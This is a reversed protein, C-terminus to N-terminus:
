ALLSEPNRPNNPPKSSVRTKAVAANPVMSTTIQLSIPHSTEDMLSWEAHQMQAGRHTYKWVRMSSQLLFSSPVHTVCQAYWGHSRQVKKSNDM